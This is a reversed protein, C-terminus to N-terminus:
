ISSRLYELWSTYRVFKELSNPFSHRKILFPENKIQRHNTNGPMSTVAGVFFNTEKVLKTHHLSFDNFTGSPYCFVKSPNKLQESLLTQARKLELKVQDDTLASFVRHSCAHSGIRLGAQEAQRLSEWTSPKYALPVADDPSFGLEVLLAKTFATLQDASLSKGFRTLQRRLNRRDNPLSLRLDFRNGNFHFTLEQLTTRWIANSLKSDWPWDLGDVMDVIAFLTPKCDHKLLIPVLQDLQDQYGDDLTFCLTPRAPKKGNLANNIVDDISVFEFGAEKAYIICAELLEPNVGEYAADLPRPRHIMYITVYHGVVSNMIDSIRKSTLTHLLDGM